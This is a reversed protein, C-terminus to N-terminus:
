SSTAATLHEVVDLAVHVQPQCRLSTSATACGLSAIKTMTWNAPATDAFPTNADVGSIRYVNGGLDAAYAWKALGDRRGHHRVVDAVM